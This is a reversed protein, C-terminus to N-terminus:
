ARGDCGGTCSSCPICRTSTTCSRAALRARRRFHPVRSVKTPEDVVLREFLYLVIIILSFAIMYNAPNAVFLIFGTGTAILVAFILAINDDVLRRALQYGCVIALFWCAINILVYIYYANVFYSFQATVYGAYPRRFIMNSGTRDIGHFYQEIASHVHQDANVAGKGGPFMYSVHWYNAEAPQEYHPVYTYPSRMSTHLLTQVLVALLAVVLLVIMERRHWRSERDGRRWFILVSVLGLVVLSAFLLREHPFDPLHELGGPLFETRPWVGSQEVTYFYPRTAYFFLGDINLWRYPLSFIVYVAGALCRAFRENRGLARSVFYVTPVTLVFLYSSLLFATKSNQYTAAGWDFRGYIMLVGAGLLLVWALIRRLPPPIRRKM